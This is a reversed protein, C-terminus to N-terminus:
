GKQKIIIIREFDLAVTTGQGPMSDIRIGIGMEDCYRKVLALGIGEGPNHSDAQYYREWIRAIQMADMGRGQDEVVLQTGELDFRIPRDTHSYKMANEILNDLVQELGIRDAEILLAPLDVAFPNRGMEAHIAVRETVVEALDMREMEVAHFERRIAYALEDYLRRLRKLAEQARSIRKLNHPEETRVELMQLNSQITSVPLNIEHLIERMLHELRADQRQKSQTLDSLLLYGVVGIAPAFMVMAIWFNGWTLGQSQFFLFLVFMFAATAIVYLILPPWISTKDVIV